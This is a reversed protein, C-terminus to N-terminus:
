FNYGVGLSIDSFKKSTSSGSALGLMSYNVNVNIRNFLLSIGGEAEIGSPSYNVNKAWLNGAVASNDVALFENIGWYLNRAGYGTGINIFANKTIGIHIGATASLRSTSTLNTFKYYNVSSAYNAVKDDTTNTILSSSVASGISYKGRVYWGFRGKIRSISITLTKSTQIGSIDLPVIGVNVLIRNKEYQISDRTIFKTTDCLGEARLFYTDGNLYQDDSIRDMGSGLIKDKTTGNKYWVWKSEDRLTGGSISLSITKQNSFKSNISKPIISQKAITINTLLEIPKICIGELQASVKSTEFLKLNISDGAAIFKNSGDYWKWQGENDSKSGGIKLKITSGSCIASENNSIITRNLTPNLVTIKRAICDTTNFKGSARVYYTYNIEPSALLTDGVFIPNGSCGDAFWQWTANTGLKGGITYMKITEGKCLKGNNSAIIDSAPRSVEGLTDVVVRYSLCLEVNSNNVIPKAFYTTEEYPSVEIFNSSSKILAGNCDDLFWNWETELPDSIELKIKQGKVIIGSPGKIKLGAKRPRQIARSAAQIRAREQASVEDDNIQPKTVIKPAQLEKPLSNQDCESDKTPDRDPRVKVDMFAILLKKGRFSNDSNPDALPQVGDWVDNRRKAGINLNVTKCIYRNFCDQYVIKFALFKDIGLPAKKQAIKFRFLNNGSNFSASDCVRRTLKFEINVALDSNEFLTGGDEWDDTVAIDSIQQSFLSNSCFSFLFVFLFFLSKNAKQFIFTFHKYVM